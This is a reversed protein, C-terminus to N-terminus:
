GDEGDTIESGTHSSKANENTSIEKDKINENARPNPNVAIKQEAKNGQRDDLRQANNIEDESQPHDYVNRNREQEM